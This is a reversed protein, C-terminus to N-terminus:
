CKPKMVRPKRLSKYRNSVQIDKYQTNDTKEKNKCLFKIM